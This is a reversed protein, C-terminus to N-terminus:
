AAIGQDEALARFTPSIVFLEEFSTADAEVQSEGLPTNDLPRLVVFRDCLDRVTSLRHTVILAGVGEGLVDKLGDHVLRETTADLSSTAEDIIMFRPKKAAAAGIMLRQAQGGSLKLGNRGVVTDLGDTLREGFDIQLRRVLSWLEEPDESGPDALGYRLNEGITGDFIQAQQPIYGIARMWSAHQVHRLDVGNVLVGGEDPDAYRLALRMLTTKGAGSSGILATKEGPRITFSVDRLIQLSRDEGHAYGHTVGTFSLSIPGDDPLVIADPTDKVPSEMLLTERLAKVSPVNRMIGRTTASLQDLESKIGYALSFAAYLVGVAVSGDALALLALMTVLAVFVHMVFGRAMFWNIAGVWLDRDMEIWERARADIALVERVDAGSTKVREAKDWRDRQYRRMARAKEDVAEGVGVLHTNLAVTWALHVFIAGCMVLAGLPFVFALAIPYTLLVALEPILGMLWMERVFFAAGQGREINGVALRSGEAVHQGLSKAFLLRSITDEIERMGFGWVFERAQDANRRFFEALLALALVAGTAALAADYRGAAARSIVEAVAITVLANGLIALLLWFVFRRWWAILERSGMDLTVWRSVLLTEALAKAHRALEGRIKTQM